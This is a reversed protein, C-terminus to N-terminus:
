AGPVDSSWPEIASVERADFPLDMKRPRVYGGRFVALHPLRRGDRLVLDFIPLGDPRPTPRLHEPLRPRPGYVLAATIRTVIAMALICVGLAVIVTNAATAGLVFLGTGIAAVVVGVLVMQVKPSM